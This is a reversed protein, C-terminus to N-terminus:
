AKLIVVLKNHKKVMETKRMDRPVVMVRLNRQTVFNIKVNLKQQLSGEMNNGMKLKNDTNYIRHNQDETLDQNVKGGIRTEIQKSPISPTNLVDRDQTWIAYNQLLDEEIFEHEEDRKIGVVNYIEDM